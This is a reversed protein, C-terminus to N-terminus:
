RLFKLMNNMPNVTKTTMNPHIDDITIKSDVSPTTKLRIVISKIGTVNDTIININKHFYVNLFSKKKKKM